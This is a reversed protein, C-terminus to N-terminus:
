DTTTKQRSTKRITDNTKRTNWDGTQETVTNPRAMQPPVFALAPKFQASKPVPAVTRAKKTGSSSEKKSSTGPTGPTGGSLVEAAAPVTEEEEKKKRKPTTTKSEAAPAMAADEKAEERGEERSEKNGM